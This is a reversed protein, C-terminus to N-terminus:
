KKREREREREGGGGVCVCVCVRVCARVCAPARQIYNKLRHGYPLIRTNHNWNSLQIYISKRVLHKCLATLENPNSFPAECSQDTIIIAFFRFVSPDRIFGKFSNNAGSCVVLYM